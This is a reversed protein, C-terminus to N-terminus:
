EGYKERNITKNMNSVTVGTTMAGSINLATRAMDLLPEIAVLTAVITIPLGMISLVAVAAFTAGGGVGAIGFSSVAIVIVLIFIWPITMDVGAIQAAMVAVMAPYIGACGNQGITAGFTASLNATIEDVGLQEEQTTINLPLAGISSRSGFGFLLVPWTKKIYQLPSFGQVTIIIVHVLYMLIIAVYTALVFKGLEALSQIPSTAAFITMLALIAFPTIKLVERVMSLVVEKLSFLFDNFPKVKEPKRKKIQLVSYGLFMGFLVTSLSATAGNGVLFGLNTTIPALIFDAYNMGGMMEQRSVLDVNTEAYDASSQGATVIKDADINFVLITLVGIITAIVVTFLLFGIVQGIKKGVNSQSGADIIATTISVLILPIVVLQLLNVYLGSFISMFTASQIVAESSAGFIIQLLSGFLLGVGLATLVRFNFNKKHKTKLTRLGYILILFIACIIITLFTNM